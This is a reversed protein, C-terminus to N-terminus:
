RVSCLLSISCYLFINGEPFMKQILTSLLVGSQNHTIEHVDLLMLHSASHVQKFILCLSVLILHLRVLSVNKFLVQKYM